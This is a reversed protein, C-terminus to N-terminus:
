PYFLRRNIADLVARVVAEAPETTVLASGTLTATGPGLVVTAVAVHRPGLLQVTVDGLALWRGDRLLEKVAEIAAVAALRSLPEASTGSAEGTVKQEGRSLVVQVRRSIGRAETSIAEFSLRSEAPTVGGPFQVVSVIRHDLKVGSTAVAVTEVDRVVQKPTKESSAVIHVEAPDGASNTVVRAAHVGPIEVLATELDEIQKPNM